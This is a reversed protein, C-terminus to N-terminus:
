GALLKRLSVAVLCVDDDFEERGCFEQVGSVVTGLLETPDTGMNEELLAAIRDVEFSECNTPNEAEFIGDTYLVLGDGASIQLKTEEYVTSAFLGLAPGQKGEDPRLLDVQDSASRLVFPPPHGASASVIEGTNLDLVMYFATAFTVHGHHRTIRTLDRNMHSLFAAPDYRLAGLEEVLGRITAVVLASRVGHGMVDSIFIGVRSESVAFIEFFDGGVAGSPLYIHGLGLISDEPSVGPPFTPYDRQIFAQQFERALSLDEEMQSNRDQLEQQIRKQDSIDLLSWVMGVIEGDANTNPAVSAQVFLNTDNLCVMELEGSWTLGQSVAATISDGHNPDNLFSTINADVLQDHSDAGLLATMAPNFYQLTAETDTIAIGNGSNQIAAHGARLRDEAEKRLTVDRIFFSLYDENSLRILNVSVEAPFVSADARACYAQILIFRDNQLSECITSMLLEDSGSIMDTIHREAFQSAEYQFFQVARENGSIIHGDIDTIIAADYVSQLLQQFDDGGIQGPKSVRRPQKPPQAPPPPANLDSSPPPTAGPTLDIRMTSSFSPNRPM